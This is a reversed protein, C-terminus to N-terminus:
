VLSMLWRHIYHSVDPDLSKLDFEVAGGGAGWLSRRPVVRSRCRSPKLDRNEETGGFFTSVTVGNQTPITCAVM